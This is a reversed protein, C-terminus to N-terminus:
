LTHPVISTSIPTSTRTNGESTAIALPTPQSGTEVNGGGILRHIQYISKVPGEFYTAGLSTYTQAKYLEIPNVKNHILEIKTM